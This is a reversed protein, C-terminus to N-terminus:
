ASAATALTAVMLASNFYEGSPSSGRKAKERHACANASRMAAMIPTTYAGQVGGKERCFPRYFTM